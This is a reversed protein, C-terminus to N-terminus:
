SGSTTVLRPRRLRPASTRVERLESLLDSEDIFERLSDMVEQEEGEPATALALLIIEVRSLLNSLAPDDNRDAVRRYFRSDSLLERSVERVVGVDEGGVPERRAVGLLLVELRDSYDNSALWARDPAVAEAGGDLM